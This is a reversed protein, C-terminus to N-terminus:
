ITFDIRKGEGIATESSSTFSIWFPAKSSFIPALRRRMRAPKRSPAAMATGMPRAIPLKLMARLSISGHVSNRRKTGAVAMIVVATIQNPM